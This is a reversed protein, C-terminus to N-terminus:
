TRPRRIAGGTEGVIAIVRDFATVATTWDKKDFAAKGQTYSQRAVEPLLPKRIDDFFTRIRPAFRPNPLGSCRIPRSMKEVIGRAEDRRGLAVLCFVQYASAETSAPKGKLSELLQLAEEYEASAYLTKAKSVVDQGAAAIPAGLLLALILVSHRLRFFCPM